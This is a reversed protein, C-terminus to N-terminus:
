RAVTKTFLSLTYLGPKRSDRILFCGESGDQRLIDESRPLSVDPYYWRIFGICNAVRTHLLFCLRELIPSNYEFSIYIL